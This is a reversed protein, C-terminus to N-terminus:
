ISDTRGPEDSGSCSEALRHRGRCDGCARGTSRMLQFGAVDLDVDVRSGLPLLHVALRKADLSVEEIVRVVVTEVELRGGPLVRGVEVRQRVSRVQVVQELLYETLQGDTMKVHAPAVDRIGITDGAPQETAVIRDLVPPIAERLYVVALVPVRVQ